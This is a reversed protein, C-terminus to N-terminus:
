IIIEAVVMIALPIFIIQVIIFVVLALIDM